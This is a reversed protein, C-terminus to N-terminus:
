QRKKFEGTKTDYTWFKNEEEKIGHTEALKLLKTQLEKEAVIVEHSLMMQQATIHGLKLKLDNVRKEAASMEDAERPHVPIPLTITPPPPTKKKM